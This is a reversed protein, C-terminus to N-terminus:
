FSKLRPRLRRQSRKGTGGKVLAKRFTINIRGGDEKAAGARKPIAHLWHSQTRGRMLVLDGSGLPIKLVEAGPPQKGSKPDPKHKLMFDRKAGLSLSAIAPNQGLFREDDSHYAVSDAGSAYYNVLCFNYREKTAAETVKRLVELSQPLPRPPITTYEPEKRIQTRTAADGPRGDEDFRSTADLGFVTTFRPTVINTPTPGRQITYSM